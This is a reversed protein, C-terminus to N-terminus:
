QMYPAAMVAASPPWAQAIIVQSTAVCCIYPLSEIIVVAAEPGLRAPLRTLNVHEDEVSSWATAIVTRGPIRDPTPMRLYQAAPKQFYPHFAASGQFTEVQGGQNHIEGSFAGLDM